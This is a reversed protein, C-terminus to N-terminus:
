ARVVPGFHWLISKKGIHDDKAGDDQMLPGHGTVLAGGGLWCHTTDPAPSPLSPPLSPPLFISPSSLPFGLAVHTNGRWGAGEHTSYSCQNWTLSVM